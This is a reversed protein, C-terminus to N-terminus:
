FEESFDFTKSALESGRNPMKWGIVSWIEELKSHLERDYLKRRDIHNQIFELIQDPDTDDAKMALAEICFDNPLLYVWKIKASSEIREFQKDLKWIKLFDNYSLAAKVQSPSGRIFQFVRRSPPNYNLNGDRSIFRVSSTKALEYISYSGLTEEFKMIREDLKERDVGRLISDLIDSALKRFAAPFSSRVTDIGKVELKGENGKKDKISKKKEMDFVKLMAYRKKAIWMAKKAVVDPVIKIRNKEPAVNFVRPVMYTYFRNIKDAIETVLDITFKTMDPMQPEIKALPLSSVYLSDTDIYKVFDQEPMAVGKEKFKIAYTDNVVREASRIIEQGSITVAEANDRDYFRFIPLGLTGYVSNLFIKQRLQRRNYFDSQEKNGEDSFKKALKRYEVREDFWISLIKPVVGINEEIFINGDSNVGMEHKTLYSDFESKDGFEMVNKNVEIKIM